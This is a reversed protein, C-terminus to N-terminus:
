VTYRHSVLFDTWGLVKGQSVEEDTLPYCIIINELWGPNSGVREHQREFRRAQIM